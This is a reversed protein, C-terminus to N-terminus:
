WPWLLLMQAACPAAQAEGASELHGAFAAAHLLTHEYPEERAELREPYQGLLVALNDAKGNRAAEFLQGDVPTSAPQTM